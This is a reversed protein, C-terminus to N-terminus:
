LILLALADVLSIRERELRDMLERKPARIVDFRERLCSAPLWCRSGCLLPHAGCMAGCRRAHVCM